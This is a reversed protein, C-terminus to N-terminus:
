PGRRVSSAVLFHSTRVAYNETHAHSTRRLWSWHTTADTGLRSRAHASNGDVAPSRRPCPRSPDRAAGAAVAPRRAKFISRVRAAVPAHTRIARSAGHTWVLTHFQSGCADPERALSPSVRFGLPPQSDAERSM